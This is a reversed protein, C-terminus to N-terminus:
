STKNKMRGEARRKAWYKRMGASMRRKAAASFQRRPRGTPSVLAGPGRRLEPFAKLIAAREQEIAVLRTRAGIRAWDRQSSKVGAM